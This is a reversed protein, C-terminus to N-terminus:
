IFERTKHFESLESNTDCLGAPSDERGQALDAPDVDNTNRTQKLMLYPWKVGLDELNHRKQLNVWWIFTHTEKREGM